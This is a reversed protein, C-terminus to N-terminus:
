VRSISWVGCTKKDIKTKAHVSALQYWVGQFHADIVVGYAESGRKDYFKEVDRIRKRNSKDESNYYNALGHKIFDINAAYMEEYATRAMEPIGKKYDYYNRFCPVFEEQVSATNETGHQSAFSTVPMSGLFLLLLFVCRLKRNLIRFSFYLQILYNNM